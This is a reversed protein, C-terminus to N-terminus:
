DCVELKVDDVYMATVGDFGDNYSSFWIKITHGGYGLDLMDLTAFDWYQNNYVGGGWRIQPGSGTTLDDIAMYQMDWAAPADLSPPESVKDWFIVPLWRVLSDNSITYHWFSLHASSSGAPITVIQYGSSYTATNDASNVIGTRLSYEGVRPRDQSFSATYETIPLEWGWGDDGTDSPDEFGKNLVINRCPDDTATSTPTRTQWWPTRTPRPTATSTSTSTATATSTSTSTATSTSTSTATTVPVDGGDVVFPIYVKSEDGIRVSGDIGSGPVSQGDTNGFSPNPDNSFNVSATVIGPADLTRLTIMVITSDPITALPPAPDYITCDIEGDTDSANFTCSGFVEPPLNLVISSPLSPDYELWTEDYDISFIVSTIDNGNPSFIVPITVTSNPDAPIGSPITLVPGVAMALATGIGGAALAIFILIILPKRYSVKQLM